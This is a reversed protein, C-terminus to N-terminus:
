GSELCASGYSRSMTFLLVDWVRLHMAKRNDLTRM